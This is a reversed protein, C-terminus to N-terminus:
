DIDTAVADEREPNRKREIYTLLREFMQELESGHSVLLSSEELNRVLYGSWSRSKENFDICFFAYGDVSYMSALLSILGNKTEVAAFDGVYRLVSSDLYISGILSGSPPTRGPSRDIRLTVTEPFNEMGPRDERVQTVLTLTTSKQGLKDYSLIEVLLNKNKLMGFLVSVVELEEPTPEKPVRVVAEDARMKLERALEGLKGM